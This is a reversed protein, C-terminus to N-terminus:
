TRMLTKSRGAMQVWVTADTGPVVVVNAERAQWTQDAHAVDDGIEYSVTIDWAPEGDLVVTQETM